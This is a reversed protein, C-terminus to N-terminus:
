ESLIVIKLKRDKFIKDCIFSIKKIKAKEGLSINYNLNIKNDELEDISIEIKSFYYGLNKLFNKIKKKDKELLVNNFSSRSKLISNKKLDELIKSSKVGEYSINQIIPNEKVKIILTENLVKVSVLDFFNTNYLRKLINNLDVETVNDSISVGSFMEITQSSIRNNGEINIKNIVEARLISAFILFFILLLNLKCFSKLMNM